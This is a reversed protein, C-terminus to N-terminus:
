GTRRNQPPDLESLTAQTENCISNISGVWIAVFLVTAAGWVWQPAQLRDLVLWAVLTSWIPLRSPLQRHSLVMRRKM